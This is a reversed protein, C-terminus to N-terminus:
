IALWICADVDNMNGSTDGQMAHLHSISKTPSSHTFANTGGHLFQYITMRITCCVDFM